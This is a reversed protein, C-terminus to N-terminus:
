ELGEDGAEHWVNGVGEFGVGVLSNFRALPSAGVDFAVQQSGVVRAAQQGLVEFAQEVLDLGRVAM